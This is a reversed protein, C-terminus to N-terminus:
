MISYQDTNYDFIFKNTKENYGVVYKWDRFAVKIKKRYPNKRWARNTSLKYDVRFFTQCGPNTKRFKDRVNGPVSRHLIAIKLSPHNYLPSLDKMGMSSWFNIYKLNDLNKLPAASQVRNVNMEIFELDKLESFASIDRIKNDTFIVAKLKKLSAIPSIDYILSHGMDLAVLDTCYKFVPAYDNQDYYEMGNGNLTSFVVADTRVSWRKFHVIWVFKIDPYDRCLQEMEKNTLGCGCMDIKKLSKMKPLTEDLAAKVQELTYKSGRLDAFEDETGVLRGLLEVPNNLRVDPHAALFTNLIDPNECRKVDLIVLNRFYGVRAADQKTLKGDLKLSQADTTYETGCVMTRIIIDCEPLAETLYLYTEDSVDCKRLDLYELKKM